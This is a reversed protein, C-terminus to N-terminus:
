RAQANVEPRRAPRITAVASTPSVAEHAVAPARCAIGAGASLTGQVTVLGSSGPNRRTKPEDPNNQMTPERATYAHPRGAISELTEALDSRRPSNGPRLMISFDGPITRTKPENPTEADPKSTGRRILAFPDEPRQRALWDMQGTM